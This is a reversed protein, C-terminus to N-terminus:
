GSVQLLQATLSSALLLTGLLAATGLFKWLTRRVQAQRVEADLAAFQALAHETSPIVPTPWTAPDDIIAALDALEAPGMSVPRALLWRRLAPATVVMVREPRAKITLSKPNVLAIVPQADALRPMRARLLKTVRDAEHEANRLHPVRRGSVMLTRGAVWVGQGTHNKTNLTFLGGPGILLHDIDAGKKGIPLAHFATWEPPLTALIGGVELEGKAGLYWSVSDDGLPSHGFLRGFGNRAPTTSQQRLLEEIVARAAHQEGMTPTQSTM